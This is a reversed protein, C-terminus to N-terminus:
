EKELEVANDAKKLQEFRKENVGKKYFTVTTGTDKNGEYVVITSGDFKVTRNERGKFARVTKGNVPKRSAKDALENYKEKTINGFEHGHKHFHFRLGRKSFQTDFVKIIEDYVNM